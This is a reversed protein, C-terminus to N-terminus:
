SNTLTLSCFYSQCDGGGNGIALPPAKHHEAIADGRVTDSM